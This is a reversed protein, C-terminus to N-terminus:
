VYDTKTRTIEVEVTDLIGHVPAHPKRVRVMVKAVDYDDLISKAVSDALAEILYFKNKKTCVEVTQFISEYDLTNQLDDTRGAKRLPRFLELDVEFKGGLDKESEILGHYGYFVM